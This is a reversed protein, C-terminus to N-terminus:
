NVTCYTAIYLAVRNCEDNSRVFFPPLSLSLITSIRSLSVRTKKLARHISRSRPHNARRRVFAPRTRIEIDRSPIFARSVFISAACFLSVQGVSVPLAKSKVQCEVHRVTETGSRHHTWCRRRWDRPQFLPGSLLAFVPQRTDPLRIRGRV